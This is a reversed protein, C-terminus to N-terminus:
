KRTAAVKDIRAALDTGEKRLKLDAYQTITVAYILPLGIATIVVQGGYLVVMASVNGTVEGSIAVMTGFVTFLGVYLVIYIVFPVSMVTATRWWNGWVLRHSRSLSDLATENDLLAAPMAFYLTLGFLLGPIILAVTGLSIVLLYIVGVLLLRPIRRVGVAFAQSFLMTNGAAFSGMRVLIAGYLAISVLLFVVYVAVMTTIGLTETTVLQALVLEAIVSPIVGLVAAIFAFGVVGAFSGTFLRLGSDLVKGISQPQTALQFM